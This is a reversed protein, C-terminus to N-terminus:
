WRIKGRLSFVTLVASGVAAVVSLAKQETSLGDWWNKLITFPAAIVNVLSTITTAGLTDIVTLVATYSGVVTYTYAQTKSSGDWGSGTIPSSGDGPNLSWSYNPYGKAAVMTFTVALPIAGSNPNVVFSTISLDEAVQLSASGSGQALTGNDKVTVSITYTGAATYKHTFSGPYQVTKNETTGDGWNITLLCSNGSVPTWGISVSETQSLYWKTKDPNVVVSLVGTTTVVANATKQM